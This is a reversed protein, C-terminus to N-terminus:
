EEPFDLALESTTMLASVQDKGLIKRAKEIGKIVKQYSDMKGRNQNHLWM